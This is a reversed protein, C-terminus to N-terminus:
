YFLRASSDDFLGLIRKPASVVRIKGIRVSIVPLHSPTRVKFKVLVSQELKLAFPTLALKIKDTRKCCFLFFDHFIYDHVYVTFASARLFRSMKLRKKCIAVHQSKIVLSAGRPLRFLFKHPM